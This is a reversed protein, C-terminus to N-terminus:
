SISLCEGLAEAHTLYQNGFPRSIQHWLDRVFYTKSERFIFSLGLGIVFVIILKFISGHVREARKDSFDTLMM